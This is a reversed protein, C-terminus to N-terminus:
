WNESAKFVFSRLILLFQLKNVFTLNWSNSHLEGKFSVFFKKAQHRWWPLRMTSQKWLFRSIWALLLKEFLCFFNINLFSEQKSSTIICCINAHNYAWHQSSRRFSQLKDWCCNKLYVSFILMWVVLNKWKSLAMLCIADVNNYSWLHAYFTVTNSIKQDAYLGLAPFYPYFFESYPCNELLHLGSNATSHHSQHKKLCIYAM